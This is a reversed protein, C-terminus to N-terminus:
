WARVADGANPRIGQVNDGAIGAISNNPFVTNVRIWGGKEEKIQIGESAWVESRRYVRLTEGPRIGHLYGGNIYIDDGKVATVNTSFPVCALKENIQMSMAKLMDNIKEGLDTGFWSTSVTAGNGPYGVVDGSVTAQYRQSHFLAGYETDYISLKILVNRRTGAGFLESFWGESSDITLDQLELKVVFQSAFHRGLQSARAATHVAMSEFSTNRAELANFRELGDLHQHLRKTILNALDPLDRAVDNVGTTGAVLISKRYYYPSGPEPKCSLLASLKQTKSQQNDIEQVVWMEDKYACGGLLILVVGVISLKYKTVIM